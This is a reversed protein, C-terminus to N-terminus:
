AFNIYCNEWLKTKEMCWQSKESLFEYLFDNIVESKFNLGLEEHNMCGKTLILNRM